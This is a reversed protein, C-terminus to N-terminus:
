QKIEKIEIIVDKANFVRVNLFDRKDKLRHLIVDDVQSDNEYIFGEMSDLVPKVVNDIDRGARKFSVDIIVIIRDYIREYDNKICIYQIYQKFDKALQSLYQNGNKSRLWYNNITPLRGEYQIEIM